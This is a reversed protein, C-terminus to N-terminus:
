KKKPMKLIIFFVVAIVVLILVKVGDDPIEEM